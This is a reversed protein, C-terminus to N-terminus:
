DLVTASANRLDISWWGRAADWGSMVYGNSREVVVVAGDPLRLRKGTLKGQECAAAADRETTTTPQQTM